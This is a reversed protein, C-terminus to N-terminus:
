DVIDFDKIIFVESLEDFDVLPTLLAYRTLGDDATLTSDVTGIVLGAPYFGGLGSTLVYDGSLLPSTEALYSLRLKGEGMLALDGEAVVIEDTRFIRAGIETDTDIVTLVTSWNLGVTDVVGVLYGEASVVCDGVAVDHKTGRNLTLTHSWNTTSHATVTASEFVFDRRQERLSLLERLLANEERDAKAQRELERLEAVEKRLAANEEELATYDAYHKEWDGYGNVVATTVMRFPASVVGVANTLIDSTSSLYTLVSLLVAVATTLALLKLAYKELFDRM